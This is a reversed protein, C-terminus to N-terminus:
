VVKGGARTIKSEASKSVPMKIILAVTLEGTGLIKVGFIAERKSIIKAAVMAAEDVAANAKFVNLRSIGIGVPRRSVKNNGWGRNLPLKKYLPLGGGSFSAPIKGRAKQGKQGRGATKGKGSGLGRGLRKASNKKLKPLENLQM